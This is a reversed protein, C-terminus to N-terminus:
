RNARARRLTEADVARLVRIMHKAAEHEVRHYECWQVMALWPVPGIGMGVQRMTSLDAYAGCIIRM